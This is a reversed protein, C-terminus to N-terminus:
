LAQKVVNGCQRVRAAREDLWAPLRVSYHGAVRSDNLLGCQRYLRWRMEAFVSERFVSEGDISSGPDNGIM